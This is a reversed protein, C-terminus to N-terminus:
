YTQETIPACPVPPVPSFTLRLRIGGGDGGATKQIFHTSLCEHHSLQHPQGKEKDNIVKKCNGKKEGMPVVKREPTFQARSDLVDLWVRSNREMTAAFMRSM